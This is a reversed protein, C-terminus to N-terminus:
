FYSDLLLNFSDIIWGDKSGKLFYVAPDSTAMSSVNNSRVFLLLLASKIIQGSDGRGYKFESGLIVRSMEFSHSSWVIREPEQCYRFLLSCLEIVM